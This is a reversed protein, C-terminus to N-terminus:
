LKFSIGIAGTNGINRTKENQDKEINNLGFNFRYEFNLFLSETVKYTGNLLIASAINYRELSNERIINYNTAGISQQGKLLYDLSFFAGSSLNFKASDKGVIKVLYACGIGLYNLKWNLPIENFTSKAGAQYFNIEPRFSQRPTAKIGLSLGYYDGFVYNTVKNASGEKFIFNTANKGYFLNLRVDKQSFISSSGFLILTLLIAKM